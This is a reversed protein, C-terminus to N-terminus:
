EGPHYIRKANEMVEAKNLTMKKLKQNVFLEMQDTYHPSDEVNSSGYPVITEILVDDDTYRVLMIFSEGNVARLKGKKYKEYQMAALNEPLGQIPLEIDGRQHVLVKGLPVELKGYHKKLHKQAYEIAKVYVDEPIQNTDFIAVNKMLYEEVIYYVAMAVLSAQENDIDTSRNWKGMIRLGEALQPYKAPSLAWASDLNALTYTYFTSDAYQYDFKIDKVDQYSLQDYKKMLEQFRIARNTNVELFGMTPDFDESNLNDGDGTAWYPSNNSNFLYGSKPNTYQPLDTLPKFKGAKWLTASTDGPLIGSWDYNPNREPLLGNSLYHINDEKDAYIINFSSIAQMNLAQKFEEFNKSKNMRYWQEAAGLKMNTSFRLSYYGEKNKFTVGYKSKYYTRTVPVKIMGIKVKLKVKYEELPLWEGDFRYHKKKKPHMDLEYVDFLDPHNVTHTWGLNPNSGIFPTIGTSLTAGHFNWGEQSNVHVEYWSVFGELPVHPNCVLVTEDTSMKKSQFVMGNSGNGRPYGEMKGLTLKGIDFIVNGFLIAALQYGKIIDKENVPFLDKHLVEKPNAKAYDNLAQANAQILAKFEESYADDYLRDVVTNVETLHAMVDWIAGKQGQVSALLGKIALFPEQIVAFDDEAHAWTMGYVADADTKGYIHPIGWQDRVITVHEPNIVSAQGFSHLSLVLCILIFIIKYM